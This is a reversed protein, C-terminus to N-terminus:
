RIQVLQQPEAHQDGIVDSVQEAGMLLAAQRMNYCFPFMECGVALIQPDRAIACTMLELRQHDM